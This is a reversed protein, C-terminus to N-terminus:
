QEAEASLYQDVDAHLRRVAARVQAATLQNALADLLPQWLEAPLEAKPGAEAIATSLAQVSPSEPEYLVLLVNSKVAMEFLAAHDGGHRDSLDRWIRQGQQFLYDHVGQSGAEDDGDAEPLEDVSTGLLEAASRAENLWIAVDAPVLNRDHALAALSLKSGLQWAARRTTLAPAEPAPEPKEIEPEIATTREVEALPTAESETEVIPTKNVTVDEATERQEAEAPPTSAIDAVPETPEAQPQDDVSPAPQRHAVTSPDPGTYEIEEWCGGGACLAVMCLLVSQRALPSHM